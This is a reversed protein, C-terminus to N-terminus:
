QGRGGFGLMVARKRTGGVKQRSGAGCMGSVLVFARKLSRVQWSWKQVGFGLLFARKRPDPEERAVVVMGWGRFGLVVARKRPEAQRRGAELVM